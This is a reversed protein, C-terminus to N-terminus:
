MFKELKKTNFTGDYNINNRVNRQAAKFGLRDAFKMKRGTLKEFDKIKIESLDQLSIMEGSNGVPFFIESAKIPPAKPTKISSTAFSGSVIFLVAFLAFVKKM